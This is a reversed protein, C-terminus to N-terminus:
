ESDERPSRSPWPFFANTREVYDSYGPRRVEIDEELLTVGSVRRLLVTMLLPAPFTWIGWSCGLSLLWFAWWVCADGFYNPHRTYRWFGTDLVEGENAPDTKFRSLQLDGGAEFLFGVIWLALAAADFWQWRDPGPSSLLALLPLSILSVLLGQLWFVTVLSRAPFAEPRAERLRRYRRDEPEGWKRWVLYGALRLGWISVLALGIGHRLTLPDTASAYVWALIVFGAGWFPDIISADRLRLSVTWLLTTLVAMLGLGLIWLIPSSM